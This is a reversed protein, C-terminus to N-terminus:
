TQETNVDLSSPKWLTHGGQLLIKRMGKPLRKYAPLHCFDPVRWSERNSKRDGKEKRQNRKNFSRRHRRRRGEDNPLRSSYSSSSSSSSLSAESGDSPEEPLGLAGELGANPQLATDSSLDLGPVDSPVVSSSAPIGPKEGGVGNRAKKAGTAGTSTVHPDGARGRTEDLIGTATGGETEVATAVQKKGVGALM